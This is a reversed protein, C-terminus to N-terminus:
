HRTLSAGVNMTVSDLAKGARVVMRGLGRGIEGLNSDIRNPAAEAAPRRTSVLEVRTAGLARLQDLDVIRASAPLMLWGLVRGSGDILRITTDNELQM